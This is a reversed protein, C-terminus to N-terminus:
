RAPSRPRRAAPGRRAWPRPGALPRGLPELAEAQGVVGAVAGAGERAPLGLADGEAPREGDVGHEQQEVLGEGGEVGAGPDLDAAVQAALEGARPRGGDHDGVVGDVGVGEGVPHDHHLRAPHALLAVQGLDGGVGPRAVHGLQDAGVQHGAVHVVPHEGGGGAGDHHTGPSVGSPGVSADIRGEAM